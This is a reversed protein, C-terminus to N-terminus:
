RNACENRRRRAHRRRRTRSTRLFNVDLTYNACALYDTCVEDQQASEKRAKKKRPRPEEGAGQTHHSFFTLTDFSHVVAHSHACVEEEEHVNEDPPVEEEGQEQRRPRGRPRKAVLKRNVELNVGYVTGTQNGSLDALKKRADELEKERFHM